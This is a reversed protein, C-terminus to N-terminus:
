RSAQQVQPFQLCNWASSFPLCLGQPLVQCLVQTPLLNNDTDREHFIPASDNGVMMLIRLPATM